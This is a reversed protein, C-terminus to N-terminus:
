LTQTHRCRFFRTTDPGSLQINVTNTTGDSIVNTVFNWDAPFISSNAEVINTQGLSSADMNLVLNQGQM